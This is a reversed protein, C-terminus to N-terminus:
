SVRRRKKQVVDRASFVCSQFDQESTAKQRLPLARALRAVSAPDFQFDGYETSLEDIEIAELLAANEAETFDDIYGSIM